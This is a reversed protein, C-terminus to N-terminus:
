CNGILSFLYFGIEFELVLYIVIRLNLIMCVLSIWLDYGFWREIRMMCGVMYGCWLEFWLM